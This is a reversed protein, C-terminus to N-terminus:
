TAGLLAEVEAPAAELFAIADATTKTPSVECALSAKAWYDVAGGQNWTAASNTEFESFDAQRLRNRRTPPDTFAQKRVGAARRIAATHNAPLALGDRALVRRMTSDSVPGAEVSGIGVRKLAALKRHGWGEWDAALTKADAEVADQAPTPRPGKATSSASRCRSWTARPVGAIECFRAVTAGAEERLADLEDFAWAALGGKEM